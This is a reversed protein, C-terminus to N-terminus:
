LKRSQNNKYSESMIFSEKIKDCISKWEIEPLKESIGYINELNEKINMAQNILSQAKNWLILLIILNVM